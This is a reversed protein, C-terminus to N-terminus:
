IKAYYELINAPIKGIKCNDWKESKLDLDVALAVIELFKEKQSFEKEVSNLLFILLGETLMGNVVALLTDGKKGCFYENNPQYDYELQTAVLKALKGNLAHNAICIIGSHNTFM